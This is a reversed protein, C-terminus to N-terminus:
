ASLELPSDLALPLRCHPEIKKHCGSPSAPLSIIIQFAHKDSVKYMFHSCQHSKKILRLGCQKHSAPVSGRTTNTNLTM